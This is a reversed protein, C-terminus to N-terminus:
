GAEVSVSASGSLSELPAPDDIRAVVNVQSAARPESGTSAPTPGWFLCLANGQPWYAVAGIPVELRADEAPVDVPTEFYLEDGWRAAEGSLPLASEIAARTEPNTGTWTATLDIDDVRLRLDSVGRPKRAARLFSESWRQRWSKSPISRHSAM